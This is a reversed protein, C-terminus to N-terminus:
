AAALQWGTDEATYLLQFVDYANLMDHGEARKGCNDCEIFILGPAAEWSLIVGRCCPCTAETRIVDNRM